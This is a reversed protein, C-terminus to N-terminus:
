RLVGGIEEISPSRPQANILSLIADARYAAQREIAERCGEITGGGMVVFMTFYGGPLVAHLEEPSPSRPKSNFLEAVSKGILLLCDPKSM